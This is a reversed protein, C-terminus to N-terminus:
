QQACQVGPGQQQEDDDDQQREYRQQQQKPKLKQLPVAGSPPTQHTKGFVKMMANKQADTIKAPFNVKFQIFLDGKTKVKGHLPMGQRPLCLVDDPNIPETFNVHM